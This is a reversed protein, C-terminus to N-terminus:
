FPDECRYGINDHMCTAATCAAAISSISNIKHFIAVYVITKNSEIICSYLSDPLTRTAVKCM